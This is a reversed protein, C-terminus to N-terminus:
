IGADMNLLDSQEDEPATDFVSFDSPYAVDSRGKKEVVIERVYRLGHAMFEVVDTTDFHDRVLLGGDLLVAIPKIEDSGEVVAAYTSAFDGTCDQLAFLALEGGRHKSLVYTRYNSILSTNRHIISTEGYRGSPLLCVSNDLDNFELYKDNWSVGENRLGDVIEIFHEDAWKMARDVALFNAKIGIERCVDGVIGGDFVLPANYRSSEIMMSNLTGDGEVNIIPRGVAKHLAQIADIADGFDGLSCFGAADVRDGRKVVTASAVRNPYPYDFNEPDFAFLTVETVSPSNGSEWRAGFWHGDGDFCRIALKGDHIEALCVQGSDVSGAKAADMLSSLHPLLRSVSLGITFEAFYRFASSVANHDYGKYREAAEEIHRFSAEVVERRKDM